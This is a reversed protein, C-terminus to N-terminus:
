DLGLAEKRWRERILAREEALRRHISQRSALIESEQREDEEDQDWSIEVPVGRHTSEAVNHPQALALSTSSIIHEQETPPPPSPPPVFQDQETRAPQANVATFSTRQYPQRAEYNERTVEGSVADYNYCGSIRSRTLARQYALAARMYSDPRSDLQSSLDPETAKPAPQTTHQARTMSSAAADNVPTWRSWQVEKFGEFGDGQHPVPLWPRSRIRADYSRPSLPPSRRVAGAHEEITYFPLGSLDLRPSPSRPLARNRVRYERTVQRPSLSRSRSRRRTAATVVTDADVERRGGSRPSAYHTAYLGRGSDLRHSGDDTAATGRPKSVDYHPARESGTLDVHTINKAPLGMLKRSEDENIQEFTVFDGTLDAYERGARIIIRNRSERPLTETRGQMMPGAERTPRRREQQIESYRDTTQSTAYDSHMAFYKQSRYQIHKLPNAKHRTIRSPLKSARSARPVRTNSDMGSAMNSRM